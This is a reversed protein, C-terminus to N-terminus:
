ARTGARAVRDLIAEALPDPAQTPIWHTVGELVVLRYDAAVLPATRDVAHRAIAVDGDSWVLTTPVTVAEQAGRDAVALPMARYWNLGFPLVGYEVIGTHFREVEEPTMGFRRLMPEIVAPRRAAATFVFPATFPIFYWSKLIQRSTLESRLFAAPHPVSVATLSSILDPHRQALTWAVASGWDHGVVHPRRGTREHLLRALEAVDDALERTRYDRVRRPRARPSYGRQDVALTRLGARHLRAAVLSWSSAREPFGHLLVVPDGDAPGDDIVDFVLGARAFETIRATAPAGDAATM